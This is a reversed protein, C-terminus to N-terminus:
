EAFRADHTLRFALACSLVRGVCTRSQELLRPGILVHQIPPRKLESEAVAVIRAHLQARLPDSKAAAVAAALQEDTLLLRPHGARLTALLDAAAACTLTPVLLFCALSALLLRLLRKMTALTLRPPPVALSS